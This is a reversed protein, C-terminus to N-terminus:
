YYDIKNKMLDTYFKSKDLVEDRSMGEVIVCAPRLASHTIPEIIDGPDLFIFGFIFGPLNTLDDIPHINKIIKGAPLELYKICSYQNKIPVLDPKLGLAVQIAAKDMSIGTSTTTLYSSIFDGGLRAGIEVIKPGEITYIVESHAASNDIGLANIGQIVIKSIEEREEFTLEAPQLHGLEVTNPYPTIFKETFQIITTEGCYTITEISYEKGQMFEEILIDGDSSYSRTEDIHDFIQSINDVKFVGRSSFADKPKIILPFKLKSLSEESIAEFTRYIKGTACPVKKAILDQKMLWKNLAKELIEPRHFILNLEEALISMLRMPKEMQGTVIGDINHKIALSRTTKYDKGDVQYFYDALSKGPPSGAPDVVVSTVGLERAAKILELQNIGAGFIMITKGSKKM